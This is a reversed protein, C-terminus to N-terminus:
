KIIPKIRVRILLGAYIVFCVTQFIINSKSSIDLLLVLYQLLQGFFTAIFIGIIDSVEESRKNILYSSNKIIYMVVCSTFSNALISVFFYKNSVLLPFEICSWLLIPLLTINIKNFVNNELPKLFSTVRNIPFLDYIYNIIIGSISVFLFGCITFFLYM